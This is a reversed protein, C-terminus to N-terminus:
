RQGTGPEDRGGRCRFGPVNDPVETDDCRMKARACRQECTELYGFPTLLWAVGAVSFPSDISASSADVAIDDEPRRLAEPPAVVAGETTLAAPAAIVREAADVPVGDDFDINAATSATTATSAEAKGVGSSQFVDDADIESADGCGTVGM